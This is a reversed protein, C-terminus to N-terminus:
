GLALGVGYAFGWDAVSRGIMDGADGDGWLRSVGMYRVEGESLYSLTAIGSHPHLAGVFPEGEHDVLDLFVFPKLLQGLDGPSMMRTLSGHKTGQTRSVIPRSSAQDPKPIPLAM